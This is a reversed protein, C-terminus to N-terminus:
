GGVGELVDEGDTTDGGLHCVRVLSNILGASDVWGGELQGYAMGEVDCSTVLDLKFLGDVPLWDGHGELDSVIEAAVGATDVRGGNALVTRIVHVM